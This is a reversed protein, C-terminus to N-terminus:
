AGIQGARHSSVWEGSERLRQKEDWFPAIMDLGHLPPELLAWDPACLPRQLHQAAALICTVLCLGCGPSPCVLLM